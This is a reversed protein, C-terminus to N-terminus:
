MIDGLAKRVVAVVAKPQSVHVCHAARVSHRDVSGGMETEMRAIIGSQMEPTICQDEECCLYSVPIDKYAAYTLPQGFSAAAHESFKSAWSLAEESPLDSFNVAASGAPDMVM